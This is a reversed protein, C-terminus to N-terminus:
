AVKPKISLKLDENLEESDTSIIEWTSGATTGPKFIKVTATVTAKIIATSFLDASPDERLGSIAISVEIKRFSSTGQTGTYWTTTEVMDESPTNTFKPYDDTWEPSTATSKAGEFKLKGVLSLEKSNGYLQGSATVTLSTPHRNDPNCWTKLKM